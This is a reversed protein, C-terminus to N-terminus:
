EPRIIKLNHLLKFIAAWQFQNKKQLAEGTPSSRAFGLPSGWFLHNPRYERIICVRKLPNPDGALDDIKPSAGQSRGSSASPRLGVFFFNKSGTLAIFFFFFLLSHHGYILNKKTSNPARGRPHLEGVPFVGSFTNLHGDNGEKKKKKRPSFSRFFPSFPPASTLEKEGLLKKILDRKM